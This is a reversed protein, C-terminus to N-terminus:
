QPENGPSHVARGGSLWERYANAGTLTPRERLRRATDPLPQIVWQRLEKNENTLSVILHQRDALSQRLEGQLKLLLAQSERERELTSKLENATALNRSANGLATDVKEQLSKTKEQETDLLKQQGWGWLGAATAALLVGVLLGDRLEM